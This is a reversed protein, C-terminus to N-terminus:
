APLNLPPIASPTAVPAAHDVAPEAADAVMEALGLGGGAAPAGPVQVLQTLMLESEGASTPEDVAQRLFTELVPRADIAQDTRPDTGREYAGIAILDAKDKYAALLAAQRVRHSLSAALHEKAQSEHHERLERVRELGFTFPPQAM